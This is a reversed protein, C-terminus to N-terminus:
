ASNGYQGNGAQGQAWPWVQSWVSNRFGTRDQFQREALDAGRSAINFQNAQGERQIAANRAAEAERQALQAGQLDRQYGFNQRDRRQQNLADFAGGQAQYVPSVSAGPIFGRSNFGQNENLGFPGRGGTM